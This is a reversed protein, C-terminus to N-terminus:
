RMEHESAIFCRGPKLATNCHCLYWFTSPSVEHFSIMVVDVQRAQKSRTHCLTLIRTAAPTEQLWKEKKKKKSKWPSFSNWRRKTERGCTKTRIKKKKKKRLWDAPWGSGPTCGLGWSSARSGTSGLDEWRSVKCSSSGWRWSPSGPWDPQDPCRISDTWLYPANGRLQSTMVGVYIETPTTPRIRPESAAIAYLSWTFESCFWSRAKLLNKVHNQM